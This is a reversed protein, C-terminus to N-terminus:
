KLLHQAFFARLKKEYFHKYVGEYTHSQGPLILMDFDKGAHILADAMRMTNAPNVNADSEGAVLLLPGKIDKALSQNRAVPKAFGQYSEGWTRRYITNDHNGASAVGAKYFDPYMGMAAVTMMGGGSHGFIGIRTSDMFAHRRMLQELGYRDDPIANDRLNGYGYKYYAANRLPSNGRHGMCVVIFGVQALATNNYRDTVTFDNWVTEIQPGPYVQSIVPYKKTSDFHFPKWMLGYLDTIGDAAKVVFPEPAKWGYAYLASVDAQYAHMILQGGTNRIVARPAQDIRSYFDIFYDRKPSIYIHHSAKEPTLLTLKSGDTNVKYLYSYYPNVGKEKGYGTLYLCGKATDIANIKGATWEGKTVANLLQGAKNYRYYQGWGTRDSWWIIQEGNNILAVQFLDENIFPKSTEHIVVRVAGTAMNVACLEMEDRTRKRRIVFLEDKPLRPGIIQLEQDPWREIPVRQLTDWGPHGIYCEYQTVLSDWPTEYRMTQVRPRGFALSNMVSMEPVRRNDKRVLCFSKSDASWWVDVPAEGNLDTEPSLAYSHYIVGDETLARGLSDKIKKIYLNHRLAYLKWQSDPSNDPSVYPQNKPQAPAKDLIQTTRTIPNVVYVQKQGTVPLWTHFWVNSSDELFFPVPTLSGTQKLLQPADYKEAAEFDPQQAQLHLVVLLCLPLLLRSQVNM